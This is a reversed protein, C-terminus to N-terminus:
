GGGGQGCRGGVTDGGGRFVGRKRDGPVEVGFSGHRCPGGFGVGRVDGRGHERASARRGFVGSPFRCRVRGRPPKSGFERGNKQLRTRIYHLIAPMSASPVERDEKAITADMMMMMGSNNQSNNSVSDMNGVGGGCGEKTLAGRKWFAFKVRRVLADVDASTGAGACWVNRALAHLKECRKDAVTTGDTARTDAALILVTSNQAVLATITTGTSRTKLKMPPPIQLQQQQKAINIEHSHRPGPHITIPLAPTITAATGSEPLSLSPLPALSELPSRWQNTQSSYPDIQDMMYDDDDSFLISEGDEFYIPDRDIFSRQIRLDYRNANHDNGHHHHQPRRRSGSLSLDNDHHSTV